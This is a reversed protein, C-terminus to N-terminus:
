RRSHFRWRLLHLGVSLQQLPLNRRASLLPVASSRDVLHVAFIFGGGEAQQADHHHVGRSVTFGGFPSLEVHNNRRIHVFPTLLRTKCRDGKETSHTVHGRLGSASKTNCM